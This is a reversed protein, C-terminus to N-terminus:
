KIDDNGLLVKQADTLVTMLDEYVVAEETFDHVYQTKRNQKVWLAITEIEEVAEKLTDAVINRIQCDDVIRHSYGEEPERLQSLANRQCRELLTEKV